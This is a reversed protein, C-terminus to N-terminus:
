REKPSIHDCSEHIERWYPVDPRFDMSYCPVSGLVRLALDLIRDAESRQGTVVPICHLLEALARAPPLGELYTREGHQLLLLAKLKGRANTNKGDQMDGCFPTGWATAIGDAVTVAVYEDNLVQAESPQGALTTKGSGSAGFFLFAEREDLLGASHLLFGGRDLLLWQFCNRLFNMLGNEIGQSALVLSGKKTRLDLAGRSLSSEVQLRPGCKSVELYEPPKAELRPDTVVTITAEPSGSFKFAEFKERLYRAVYPTQAQLFLNVGGIGVPISEEM